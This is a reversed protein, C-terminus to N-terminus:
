RELGVIPAGTPAKAAWLHAGYVEGLFDATLIEGPLGEARLRGQHLVAIRRCFLAALNLDHTVTVVTLGREQNLTSLLRFIQQQHALDLSATPEDLLLIDPEQALARAVLVMQREGGSIQDMPRGALHAIGVADLAREATARDEESETSLLGKLYPTRGMLVVDSVRFPFVMAESQPVVGIRRAVEPRSLSRLPTGFLTVSGRDPRLAGTLLHLLTSKGAGNPGVIGLFLGRSISLDLGALVPADDRYSFFLGGAQLAPEPRPGEPGSFGGPEKGSGPLERGTDSPPSV